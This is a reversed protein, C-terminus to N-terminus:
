RSRSATESRRAWGKVALCGMVWALWFATCGMTVNFVFMADLEGDELAKVTDKNSMMLVLGGATLCFSAIIETPPRQPLYSTPPKVYMLAYTALRALSFGMFLRGWQAHMMSSVMSTQSHGSMSVGLIFIILAPVPCISFSYHEPEAYAHDTSKPGVPATSLKRM